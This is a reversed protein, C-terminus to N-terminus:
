NKLSVEATSLDTPREQGLRSYSITELASIVQLKKFDRRLDQIKM